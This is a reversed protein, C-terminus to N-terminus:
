PHDVAAQAVEFLRLETEHLFRQGLPVAQKTMRPVIHLRQAGHNRDETPGPPQFLRHQFHDAESAAGAFAARDPHLDSEAEVIVVHAALADHRPMVKIRGGGGQAKHRLEVGADFARRDVVIGPHGVRLTEAVLHHHIGPGGVRDKRDVVHRCRREIGATDFQAAPDGALCEPHPRLHDDIGGPCPDIFGVAPKAAFRFEDAPGLSRMEHEVIGLQVPREVPLNKVFVGLAPDAQHKREMVTDDHSGGVDGHIRGIFGTTVVLLDIVDERGRLADQRTEPEVARANHGTEAGHTGQRAAIRARCALDAAIM